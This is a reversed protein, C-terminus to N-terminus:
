KYSVDTSDTLDKYQRLWDCLCPVRGRVLCSSSETCLRYSFYGRNTHRSASFSVNKQEPVM